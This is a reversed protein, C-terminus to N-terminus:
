PDAPSWSQLEYVVPANEVWYDIWKVMGFGPKVWEYWEPTSDPVDLAQKHFKLCGDFSGAGVTVTEIAEVTAKRTFQGEYNFNTWTTGPTAALWEVTEALTNQDFRILASDTSRLLNLRMGDPGAQEVIAYENTNGALQGSYALVHMQQTWVNGVANSVSYVFRGGVPMLTFLNTACKVRYFMPVTVTNSTGSSFVKQLSNWNDRWANTGLGPAWEITFLGNAFAPLNTWTLQGNGSLSTIQVPPPVAAAEFSFEDWSVRGTGPGQLHLIIQDFPVGGSGSYMVQDDIEITLAATTAKITFHHWGVTRGFPTKGGTGSFPGYYYGSGDWDQVGITASTGLATNKAFLTFYIYDKYDYVWVSVRGYQPTSFTHTLDIEKQGSGSGNFLVAQSGAHVQNTNLTLTGNQITTAWFSNLTGAEFDDTFAAPDAAFVTTAALAM